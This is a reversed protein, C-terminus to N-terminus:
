RPAAERLWKVYPEVYSGFGQASHAFSVYGTALISIIGFAILTRPLLIPVVRKWGIKDRHRYEHSGLTAALMASVLLATVFMFLGVFLLMVGWMASGLQPFERARLSFDFAFGVGVFPAGALALLQVRWVALRDSWHEPRGPHVTKTDESQTM